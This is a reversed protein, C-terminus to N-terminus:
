RYVVHLATHVLLLKKEKIKYNKAIRYFIICRYYSYVESTTTKCPSSGVGQSFHYPYNKNIKDIKIENCHVQTTWLM